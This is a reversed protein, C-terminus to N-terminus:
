WRLLAIANELTRLVDDCRLALRMKMDQDTTSGAPCWARLDADVCLMITVCENLNDFLQHPNDSYSISIETTTVAKLIITLVEHNWFRSQLNEFLSQRLSNASERVRQLHSKM